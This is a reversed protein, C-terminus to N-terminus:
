WVLPVLRYRTMTTYEKYGPLEQQLSRDELATRLIILLTSVSGPILAWCSGLILPMGLIGLIFSVYGPHRVIKYPGSSCVQHGREEQIRVTTSFYSNVAMAWLGFTGAPIFILVGLLSVEFPMTSWEYRFDLGAIILIGLTIPIMLAYFVKDFTKTNERFVKGRENLVQPNIKLLAAIFIIQIVLFLGVYMWANIWDIRGASILLITLQIVPRMFERVVGRIGDRNLGTPSTNLNQITSQTM